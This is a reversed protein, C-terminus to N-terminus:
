KRFLAEASARHGASRDIRKRTRAIEAELCSIREELEGVSLPDLDQKVLLALPDDPRRPSYDDMDMALLTSGIRSATLIAHTFRTLRDRPFVTTATPGTIRPSHM